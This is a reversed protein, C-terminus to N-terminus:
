FNPTCFDTVKVLLIVGVRYYISMYCSLTQKKVDSLTGTTNYSHFKQFIVKSELFVFFRVLYLQTDNQRFDPTQSDFSVFHPLFNSFYSFGQTM